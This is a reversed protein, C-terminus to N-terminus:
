EQGRNLTIPEPWIYGERDASGFLDPL